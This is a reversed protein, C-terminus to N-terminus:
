TWCSLPLLMMISSCMVGELPDAFNRRAKRVKPGGLRVTRVLAGRGLVLGRDPVPGGSFQYADALAAEAASSWISWAHSVDGFELAGDLGIADDRSMFQLRDDYIGWVRQVDASKSGGSKDLVPLWSAPWLPTRQVPQSVRSVWRSYEFYARVALHPLIWRGEQVVCRSVAVAARPCGVLFFIEPGVQLTGHASVPLGLSGVM